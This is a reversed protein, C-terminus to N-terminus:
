DRAEVDFQWLSNAVGIAPNILKGYILLWDAGPDNLDMSWQDIKVSTVALVPSSVVPNEFTKEAVHLLPSGRLAQHVTTVRFQQTGDVQQMNAGFFPRIKLNVLHRGMIPIVQLLYETGNTAGFIGNASHIIPARKPAVDMPEKFFLILRLEPEFFAPPSAM